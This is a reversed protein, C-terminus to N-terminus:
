DQKEEVTHHHYGRRAYLIGALCLMIGMLLLPAGFTDPLLIGALCFIGGMLLLFIGYLIDKIDQLFALVGDYDKM